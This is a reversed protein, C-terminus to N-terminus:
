RGELREIREVLRAGGNRVRVRVAVRDGPLVADRFAAKSVSAGDLVFVTTADGFVLQIGSVRAGAADIADLAAEMRLTEDRGLRDRRALRRADVSGDAAVAGRVTVFAGIALSRLAFTRVDAESADELQTRAGLRVEVDLVELTGRAFDLGDVVGNVVFDVPPIRRVREAELLGGEVRGSVTVLEGVDLADRAGDLFETDATTAVPQGGVEFDLVDEFRTVLAEIRGRGADEVATLPAAPLRVVRAAEFAEEALEGRVEVRDGIAVAGGDFGELAADAFRVEQSGLRFTRAEGDLAAVEGTLEFATGDDGRREVRTALVGGGATGHGAVVVLEGEALGSLARPDIGAGFVTAADVRVERGLVTMRADAPQLTGIPGEVATVRAIVDATAEQSGALEGEVRVREAVALEREDIAIGDDTITAADAEFTMGDVVVSRFATVTGVAAVRDDERAPPPDAIEGDDDTGGDCAWIFVLSALLAPYARLRVGREAGTTGRPRPTL